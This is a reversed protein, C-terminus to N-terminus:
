KRGSLSWNSVAFLNRSCAAWALKTLTTHAILRNPVAQSQAPFPRAQFSFNETNVHQTKSLGFTMSANHMIQWEAPEPMM